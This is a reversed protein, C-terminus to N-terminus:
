DGVLVEEQEVRAQGAHGAGGFCFLHFELFGIFEFDCDHGGVAAAGARVPGILYVFSFRGLPAGHREFGGFDVLAAPRHQHAGGAHLFGLQEAGQQRLLLDGVVQEIGLRFVHLPFGFDHGLSAAGAGHGDGGVHGTAAGVDDQTAVAVVHRPELEPLHQQGLQHSRLVLVPRDGRRLGGALGAAQAAEVGAAERLGGLLGEGLEALLQHRGPTIALEGHQFQFVADGLRGLLGGAFIALDLGQPFQDGLDLAFVVAHDLLVLLLHAFGAAQMHDAGLAM